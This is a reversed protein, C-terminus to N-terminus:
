QVTLESIWAWNRGDQGKPMSRFQLAISDTEVPTPLQITTTPSLASTALETGGRPNAPDTVNRVVVEGGSTAPDMNLTVSSVTAKQQLKVVITVSTEDRFQNNDFWRSSWSTSPNSDIMNIARDPHDGDDNNWSLVQVSSIVPTTTPAPPPTTTLTPAPEEGSEQAAVGNRLSQGLDLDTVPRTAMWPGWIAGFLFLVVGFILAPRTPDILKASREPKAEEEESSAPAPQAPAAPIPPVSDMVETPDEVPPAPIASEVASQVRPIQHTVPADALPEPHPYDAPNVEGDREYGSAAPAPPPPALPFSASAVEASDTADTVPEVGLAALSEAMSTGDPAPIPEDEPAPIPDEDPAPIPDEDPAPIPEDEPAPIPDEDPAPIPDEDPLPIGHAQAIAEVAPAAIAEAVIPNEVPAQTAPGFAPVEAPAPIPPADVSEDSSSAPPAPPAPIPSDAVVEDFSPLKKEDGTREPTPAMPDETQDPTHGTMIAAPNPTATSSAALINVVAAPVHLRTLLPRMMVASEHPAAFRLVVLYVLGTVASVVSLKVGAVLMRGLTSSIDTHIGMLWLVGFGVFGAVIAAGLYAVYSRLLGARDVFSNERSVWVVAIVGQTLRCATEGLAAAVVWWRAGTLAYMSWGVIVQIITPGIGMLFVPKVNEYAFFVRQSMLVMGTSAVGPMLSTLVLAYGTVAAPDGGKAAMAIEMMPVSGAMLMAAAVLTLSTITRVGLHYSDAVARDDGDAVAGAMRTFIATTLSVTILSQPVMFIMFATSYALIGVVGGQAGGQGIFGDAMAALNNTSLVGVQSVGLTAFTWGAVRPMSGFSTGRFHFDPKFSVGAKRMPWLLCLAQCIVGLTASGALVWFQAGTLDGAPIGGDPAGGWIALFVGLGAIGVVNNVVPAWMYPGFIERANLLEGLLNYLGYFFLQPLCLLAFLIALNRIDETYGAATIMVLVPALVMTVFTVLFLLTGALTLLRNVYTDGDHRRKIAGVIQPVLVADFIGSALLNFVTNPLTNATQFAAGVGGATAGVAAILMANRIFGLIRSVMTGSAMLASARLISRRPTNSSM